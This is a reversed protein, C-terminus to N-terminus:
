LQQNAYQMMEDTAKILKSNVEYARQTEIMDVLEETIDVNSSELSGQAITGRGDVGADGVQPAGSSATEVLLNNGTAQLGTPNTFSVTQIKGLATTAAQGQPTASVTGDAAITIGTAGSPVTIPPQLPM